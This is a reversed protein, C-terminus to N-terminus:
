DNGTRLREIQSRYNAFIETSDSLYGVLVALLGEVLERGESDSWPKDTELWGYAKNVPEKRRAHNEATMM